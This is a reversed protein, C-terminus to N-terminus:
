SAPPDQLERDVEDILVDSPEGQSQHKVAVAEAERMVRLINEGAIKAVDQDSYGRRLLESFLAPYTSADELGIPGPPMGDYDAGIGIHDIGILGRVHDIHDAVQSLSPRIPPNAAFYANVRVDIEEPTKSREKIEQIARKGAKFSASAEASGYAPFFTIMIIGNNDKLRLLVEDPVNRPNATVAYANSHSFIVPASSVDLAMHMAQASVHSLDVLMGLRNM